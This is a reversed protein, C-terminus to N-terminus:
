AACHVRPLNQVYFEDPTQNDLATHPRRQNYFEFYWTMKERAITMSDYAHLYVEEYKLSKWLRELFVNDRWCGKGDMSIAIGNHQLVSTFEVSTFQSGQDTNFIEPTGYRTIAEQAAEVCFDTTLTNSLRWALVRRSAWDMVACLYVFGRSMPIYTIDAAWVQNPRDITLHRLLYPYVPHSPHPMSTNHKRYIAQIGMLRMLRSIRGRSVFCGGRKLQKRLARSGMFPYELHLEDLRRMLQVNEQSVPRPRYYVSSRSLHLVQCQRIVPFDHSRNIM